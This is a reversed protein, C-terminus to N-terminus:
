AGIMEIRDGATSFLLGFSHIQTAKIARQPLRRSGHLRLRTVDPKGISVFDRHFVAAEQDALVAVAGDPADAVASSNPMFAHCRVLLFNGAASNRM